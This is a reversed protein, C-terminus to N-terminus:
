NEKIFTAIDNIVNENIHQEVSYEKGAKMIDNYVSNVFVHNLNEYLIYKINEKDKLQRKFENFDEEVLVQFDKEGQLMLVPKDIDKLYDVATKLGMEKFYYLSMNGAFIKKKANEDSLSYLNKFKNSFIIDELVILPKLLINSTKTSQKLQRIIIDELRNPSGAMMILGKYNGGDHDIRPALMAGMSHGIIYINNEDIRPDNRLIQTALLADEITEEKVTIKLNKMKKGYVFTRKDYRISAIGHKELGLALDKFPTLKLVTENMDTAGSGHVFVVAPYKDLNLDPITLIGNLPYLSDKGVIVKEEM